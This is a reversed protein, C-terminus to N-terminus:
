RQNACADQTHAKEVLDIFELARDVANLPASSIAPSFKQEDCARLFESIALRLEPTLTASRDLEACFEATTYEGSPFELVAGIYHRLAQSVEGLVNRDEPRRKCKALAERAATAPPLVAEVKPKFIAWVVVGVLVLLILGGVLVTVGHQELFTPPIPADPPFLQPLANTRSQGFLRPAALVFFFSLFMSCRVDFMSRGIFREHARTKIIALDRTLDM